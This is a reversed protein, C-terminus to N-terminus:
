AYERNDHRKKGLRIASKLMTEVRPRCNEFRIKGLVDPGRESVLNAVLANAFSSNMNRVGELDFKICDVRDLIPDVKHSRYKLAKNGDACLAGLDDALRLKECDM